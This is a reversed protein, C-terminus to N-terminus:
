TTPIEGKTEKITPPNVAAPKVTTTATPIHDISTTIKAKARLDSVYKQIAQQTLLSEIRPKVEAFSPPNLKRTGQLLIVHWGFRTHVPSKTYEGQKLKEVAATFPPVMTDATFWGLEGGQPASPAISDKKALAAFNAGKNLQEIVKEAEAKTKLLIHSAKYETGGSQSVVQKYTKELEADSYQPHGFKERLLAQILTNATNEEIKAQIQPRKNIGANVAAQKLLQMDVLEELLAKRSLKVNPMQQARGVMYNDYEALTIPRGNVTAVVDASPPAAHTDSTTADTSKSQCGTLLTAAIALSATLWVIRFKM